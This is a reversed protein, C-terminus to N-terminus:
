LQATDATLVPAYKITDFSGSAAKSTSKKSRNKEKEDQEAESGEYHEEDSETKARGRRSTNKQRSEQIM